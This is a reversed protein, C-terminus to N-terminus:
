NMLSIEQISLKTLKAMIYLYECSMRFVFFSNSRCRTFYQRHDSHNFLSHKIEATPLKRQRYVAGAAGFPADLSADMKEVDWPIADAELLENLQHSIKRKKLYCGSLQTSRIQGM